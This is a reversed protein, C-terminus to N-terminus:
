VFVVSCWGFGGDLDSFQKREDNRMAARVCRVCAIRATRVYMCVAGHGHRGGRRLLSSRRPMATQMAPPRVRRGCCSCTSRDDSSFIHYEFLLYFRTPPKKILSPNSNSLRSIWVNTFNIILKRTKPPLLSNISIPIVWGSTKM